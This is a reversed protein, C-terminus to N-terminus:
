KRYSHLQLSTGIYNWRYPEVFTVGKYKIEVFVEGQEHPPTVATLYNPSYFTVDDAQQVDFWVPNM